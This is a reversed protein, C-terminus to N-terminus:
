EITIELFNILQLAGVVNFRAGRLQNNFVDIQLENTGRFDAKQLNCKEYLTNKLNCNSFDAKSLNCDYFDCHHIQSAGFQTKSLDM